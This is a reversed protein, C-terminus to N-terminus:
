LLRLTKNETSNEITTTGTANFNADAELLAFDSINEQLYVRLQELLNEAQLKLTSALREAREDSADSRDNFAQTNLTKFVTVGRDDILVSKELLAKSITLNVVAPQIYNELIYKNPNSLTAAKIQTKILDFTGTLVVPKIADQEVRQMISKFSVFVRRSNGIFFHENFTATKFVFNNYLLSYEDSAVWTPYDAKKEELFDFLDNIKDNGSDLLEKQLAETRWKTAPRMQETVAEQIGSASFIVSAIPINKALALDILPRRVEHLLDAYITPLPTPTPAISATYANQLLTFLASGLIKKIEKREITEIDQKLNAIKFTESVSVYNKLEATTTVLM